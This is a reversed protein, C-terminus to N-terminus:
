DHVTFQYRVFEVSDPTFINEAILFMRRENVIKVAHEPSTAYCQTTINGAYMTVLESDFFEEEHEATPPHNTNGFYDMRVYYLTLNQNIQKVKANLEYEEVDNCSFKDVFQQATDKSDFVGVVGMDSYSGDTVVYIKTM